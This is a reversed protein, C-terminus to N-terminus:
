LPVLECGESYGFVRRSAQHRYEARESPYDGARGRCDKCSSFPYSRRAYAATSGPTGPARPSSCQYGRRYRASDLDQAHEAQADSGGVCPRVPLPTRRYSDIGNYRSTLEGKNGIRDSGDFVADPMDAGRRAASAEDEARQSRVDSLWSGSVQVRVM